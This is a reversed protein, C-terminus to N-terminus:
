NTRLNRSGDEQVYYRFSLYPAPWNLDTVSPPNGLYVSQLELKAFKGDPLKLIYTRSKIPQMLHTSLSYFYWGAANDSAAWGIKNIGSAVFTEDSPAENVKDYPQDVMAVASTAPGGYGPNYEYSGKNVYVESNYPGTFALDWSTTKLWKVSDAANRIWIQQQNKLNFLFTYFPRKEKGDAGDGMSAGTDGALDKIWVSKTDNMVTEEVDKKCSVVAVSLLLLVLFPNRM